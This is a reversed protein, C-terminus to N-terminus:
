RRKRLRLIFVALLFGIASAIAIAGLPARKAKVHDKVVGAVLPVADLADGPQAAAAPQDAGAAGDGTQSGAANESAAAPQESAPPQAPGVLTSQLCQAFERLLRESIDEIM